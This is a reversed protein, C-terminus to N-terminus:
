LNENLSDYERNANEISQNLNVGYYAFPYIRKNEDIKLYLGWDPAFDEGALEVLDYMLKVKDEIEEKSTIEMYQEYKLIGDETYFENTQILSKEHNEWNNFYYRQCNDSYDETMSSWEVIATFEIEPKDKVTFKYVGNDNEDVNKSIVELKIDYMSEITDQPNVHIRNYIYTWRDYLIFVTGLVIVICTIILMIKVIKYIISIAKEAMRKPKSKKKEHFIDVGYTEVYNMKNRKWDEIEELDKKDM